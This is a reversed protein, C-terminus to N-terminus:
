RNMEDFYQWRCRNNSLSVVSVEKKILTHKWIFIFRVDSKPSIVSM